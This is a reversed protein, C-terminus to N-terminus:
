MLPVGAFAPSPVFPRWGDPTMWGRRVGGGVWMELVLPTPPLTCLNSWLCLIAQEITLGLSEISWAGLGREHIHFPHALLVRGDSLFQPHIVAAYGNSAMDTGIAEMMLAYAQQIEPSMRAVVGKMAKVPDEELEAVFNPYYNTQAERMGSLANAKQWRRRMHPKKLDAPNVM